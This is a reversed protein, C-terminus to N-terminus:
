PPATNALNWHWDETECLNAVLNLVLAELADRAKSQPPRKARALYLTRNLNPQTIRKAILQGESVEKQVAGFPLVTLGLGRAVMEKKPVMSDLEYMIDLNTGTAQAAKELLSRLIHPRSPLILPANALDRFPVDRLKGANNEGPSILFLAETILPVFEIDRNETNSYSLALDLRDASLLALNQDGRGDGIRISLNPLEARCREVLSAALLLSATPTLGISVRGSPPGAFDRIDQTARETQRLILTAHEYLKKGAPTVAVGRSHRTILSSGFEDELKRIQLGLAPQSINLQYAANTLSGLDVATVFYRLQRIDMPGTEFKDVCEAM